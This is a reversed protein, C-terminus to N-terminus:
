EKDKTNQFKVLSSPAKTSTMKMWKALCKARETWFSMDQTKPFYDWIIEPNNEGM